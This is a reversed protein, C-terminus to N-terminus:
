IQGVRNDPCRLPPQRKKLSSHGEAHRGARRSRGARDDVPGIGEAAQ